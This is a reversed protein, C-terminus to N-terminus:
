TAKPAPAVWLCDLESTIVSVRTARSTSATHVCVVSLTRVLEYWRSADMPIEMPSGM